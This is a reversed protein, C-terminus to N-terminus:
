LRCQRGQWSKCEPNESSHLLWRDSMSCGRANRKVADKLVLVGPEEKCTLPSTTHLFLQPHWGSSHVPKGGVKNSSCHSSQPHAPSPLFGKGAQRSKLGHCISAPAGRLLSTVCGATMPNDRPILRHRLPCLGQSFPSFLLLFLFHFSPFFFLIPVLLKGRSGALGPSHARPSPSPFLALLKLLSFVCHFSKLQWRDM